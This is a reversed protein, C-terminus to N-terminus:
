GSRLARRVGSEGAPRALLAEGGVDEIHTRFQRAHRALHADRVDEDDTGTADLFADLPVKSDVVLSKSGALRVVLDPRLSGDALQVQEDFDCRNVLGALEVARRLHLEGWRGRVQPKRLATSLSATERRM